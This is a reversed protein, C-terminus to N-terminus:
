IDSSKNILQNKIETDNSTDNGETNETEETEESPGSNLKDNLEDKTITKANVVKTNSQQIFYLFYNKANALANM